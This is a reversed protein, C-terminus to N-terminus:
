ARARRPSTLTPSPEASNARPPPGRRQLPTRQEHGTPSAAGPTPAGIRGCKARPRSAKIARAPMPAVDQPGEHAREDRSRSRSPTASGRAPPRAAARCRAPCRLCTPSVLARGPSSAHPCAGGAVMAPASARWFGGRGIPYRRGDHLRPTASPGCGCAGNSRGPRPPGRGLDVEGDLQIVGIAGLSRSVDTVHPLRAPGEQSGPACGPARDRRGARAWRGGELLELRPRARGACALPNAMFTPGHMLGGGEGSASRRPPRGPTCFRGAALTM